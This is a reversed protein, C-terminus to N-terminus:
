LIEFDIFISKIITRIFSERKTKLLHPFVQYGQNIFQTKIKQQPSM